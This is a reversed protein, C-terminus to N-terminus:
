LFMRHLKERLTGDMLRENGLFLASGGLLEPNVHWTPANFGKLKLLSLAKKQSTSSLPAASVMEAVKRGKAEYEKQVEILIARLFKTDGRRKVLSFFNDLMSSAEKSTKAKMLSGALARVYRRTNKSRVQM